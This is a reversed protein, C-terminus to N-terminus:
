PRAEAPSLPGLPQLRMGPRLRTWPVGGSRGAGPGARAGGAGGERDAPLRRPFAGLEQAGPHAAAAARRRRPPVDGPRGGAGEEVRARRARAARQAAGGDARAEDPLGQVDARHVHVPRRGASRGHVRGRAARRGPVGSSRASRSRARDRGVGVEHAQKASRPDILLGLVADRPRAPAAAGRAPGHHRRQRGRGSQGAHRRAGGARRSAASCRARSRTTPSTCSSRSSASPTPSRAQACRTSRASWTRRTPATASCRWTANPFTRWRSARRSRSCSTTSASSRASRRTCAGNGPEIFTCQSSLGTLFDLPRMAKALPAGAACRACRAAAGRARRDDAMDVHPYTRYAVLGDAREIM